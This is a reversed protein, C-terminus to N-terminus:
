GSPCLTVPIGVLRFGSVGSPSSLQSKTLIQVIGASTGCEVSCSNLFSWRVRVSEPLAKV